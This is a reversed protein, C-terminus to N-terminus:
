EIGDLYTSLQTIFETELKEKGAVEAKENFEALTGELDEVLGLELLHIYKTRTEDIAALENKVEADNFVFGSTVVSIANGFLSERVESIAGAEGQIREYMDNKLGWSTGNGVTFKAQEDGPMWTTDSTNIWHEGEIGYRALEYYDQRFKLLDIMMFAREKNKSSEAVAIGDGLFMGESRVVDPTVDVIEPKWEPHAAEVSIQCAEVTDINWILSASTGNEFADRPSITNSIANKSWYGKDAWSKMLKLYELYEETDYLWMIDDITVKQNEGECFYGYYESGGNFLLVNKAQLFFLKSMQENTGAAAYPWISGGENAAVADYYEELTELSNVEEISYKERLDGRILVPEANDVYSSNKPIFYAVGDIKAQEFAMSSQNEKTLPMYASLVEDTVPAFAGKTAEQTYYCWTSTYIMDLTEGGSLLLSYTTEYDSLPIYNIELSANLDKEAKENIKAIIKDADEPKDGVVYMVLDVHKSIDIGNYEQANAQTSKEDSTGGGSVENNKQCGGLMGALMCISILITIAKKMEKM